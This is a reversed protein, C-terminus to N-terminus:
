LQLYLATVNAEDNGSIKVSQSLLKLLIVWDAALKCLGRFISLFSTPLSCVLWCELKAANRYLKIYWIPFTVLFKFVYM